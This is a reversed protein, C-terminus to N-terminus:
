YKFYWRLGGGLQLNRPREGTGVFDWSNVSALTVFSRAAKDSFLRIEAGFNLGVAANTENESQVDRGSLSSVGAHLAVGVYPSWGTQNLDLPLYNLNLDLDYQRIKLDRVLSGGIGYTWSYEIVEDGTRVTVPNKVNNSAFGFGVTGQLHGREFVGLAVKLFFGGDYLDEAPVDFLQGNYTFDGFATGDYSGVPKAFGGSVELIGWSPAVKQIAQSAPAAVLVLALVVWLAVFRRLM